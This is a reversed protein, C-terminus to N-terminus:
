LTEFWTVEDFAVTMQMGKALLLLEERKPDIRRVACRQRLRPVYVWDGPKLGALFVRRRQGLPTGAMARGLAAFLAELREREAPRFAGLQPTFAAIENRVVTFSEEV